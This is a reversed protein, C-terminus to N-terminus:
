TGRVQERSEAIDADLACLFRGRRLTTAKARCVACREDALRKAFNQAYRATLGRDSFQTARELKM